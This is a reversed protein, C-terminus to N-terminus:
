IIKIKQITVPTVLSINVVIDSYIFACKIDFRTGERRIFCNTDRVCGDVKTTLTVKSNTVKYVDKWFRIMDNNMMSRALLDTRMKSENQLCYKLAIKFRLRPKNMSLCIERFRPKGASRWMVFDHRAFDHLEKLHKNFVPVIHEKYYGIKNSPMCKESATDLLDCIQKYSFDIYSKHSSIECNIANSARYQM